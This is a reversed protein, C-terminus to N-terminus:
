AAPVGNASSVHLSPDTDDDAPCFRRYATSPNM